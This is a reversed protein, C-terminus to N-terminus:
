VPNKKFGDAPIGSLELLAELYAAKAQYFELEKRLERNHRRLDQDDEQSNMDPKRQEPYAQSIRRIPVEPHSKQVSYVALLRNKDRLWSKITECHIDMQRSISSVTSGEDYLKIVEVKKELSYRRQPAISPFYQVGEKRIWCQITRYSIDFEKAAQKITAGQGIRNLVTQKTEPDHM